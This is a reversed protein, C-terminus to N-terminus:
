DSLPSNSRASSTPKDLPAAAMAYLIAPGWFLWVYTLIQALRDGEQCTGLLVSSLCKLLHKYIFAWPLLQFGTDVMLNIALCIHYIWVTLYQEDQLYSSYCDFEYLCLLVAIVWSKSWSYLKLKPLHLTKPSSYHHHNGLLPLTSLTMFCCRLIILVPFKWMEFDGL